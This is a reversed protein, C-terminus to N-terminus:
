HSCTCEAESSAAVTATPAPRLVKRKIPLTHHTLAKLEADGRECRQHGWQWCGNMASQWRAGCSCTISEGCAGCNHKETTITVTHGDHDGGHVEATAEGYSDLAGYDATTGQWNTLTAM